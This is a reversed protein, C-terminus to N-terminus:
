NGCKNQWKGYHQRYNKNEYCEGKKHFILM